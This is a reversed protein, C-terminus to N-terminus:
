TPSQSGFTHKPYGYLGKSHRIRWRNYCSASEVSLHNRTVAESVPALRGSLLAHAALAENSITVERRGARISIAACARLPQGWPTVFYKRCEVFHSGYTSMSDLRTHMIDCRNSRVAYVPELQRVASCVWPSQLLVKSRDPGVNDVDFSGSEEALPIPRQPSTM